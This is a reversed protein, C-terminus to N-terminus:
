LNFHAAIAKIKQKDVEYLDGMNLPLQEDTRQRATFHIADIDTDIFTKANDPNIGSGAMIEIRGAAKEHLSKILEIGALATPQGGSTLVRDFGIHIIHELEELPNETLDIARHFTTQLNLEVATEMLFVNKKVAVENEDNLIGFVVGVANVSAAARMDREMLEIEADSYNFNGGRPRIMVFVDASTGNVCAEIMGVSPTLGGEDLAACLEVRKAGFKGAILAGEISDICVEFDM